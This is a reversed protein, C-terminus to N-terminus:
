GGDSGETGGDPSEGRLAEYARRFRREQRRYLAQGAAGARRRGRSRPVMGFFALMLAAGFLKMDLMPGRRGIYLLDYLLKERPTSYYDGYVQALGALGPRVAHRLAYNQISNVHRRVFVTREPRPGVLSMDGLVVNIMQPLEDVHMRRLLGGLPTVRADEPSAPVPGTAGEADKIMTRLKLQRFSRGRRKVAVKAVLPPGPDQLWLLALLPISIPLSVILIAAAALADLVRKARDWAQTAPPVAAHADEVEAIVEPTPPAIVEIWGWVRGTRWLAAGFVSLLGVLLYNAFAAAGFRAQHLAVATSVACGIWFAARLRREIRRLGHVGAPVAHEFLLMLGYVASAMLAAYLSWQLLENEIDYGYLRVVYRLYRALLAFLAVTAVTFLLLGLAVRRPRRDATASSAGM